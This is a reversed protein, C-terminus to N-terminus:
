QILFQLIGVPCVMFINVESKIFIFITVRFIHLVLLIVTTQERPTITKNCSMLLQTYININTHTHIHTHKPTGLISYCMRYCQLFKNESTMKCQIWHVVQNRWLM